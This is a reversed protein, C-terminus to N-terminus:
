DYLRFINEFIDVSIMTLNASFLAAYYHRNHASITNKAKIKLALVQRRLHASLRYAILTQFLAASNITQPTFINGRAQVTKPIGRRAKQEAQRCVPKSSIGFAFNNRTDKKAAYRSLAAAPYTQLRAKGRTRKAYFDNRTKDGTPRYGDRWSKARKSPTLIPSPSFCRCRRMNKSKESLPKSQPTKCCENLLSTMAACGNESKESLSRLPATGQLMRRSSSCHNRMCKARM